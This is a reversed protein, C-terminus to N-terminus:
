KSVVKGRLVEKLIQFTLQAAPESGPVIVERNIRHALNLLFNGSITQPSAVTSQHPSEVGIAVAVDPTTHLAPKKELRKLVSYGAYTAGTYGQEGKYCVRIALGMAFLKGRHNKSIINGDWVPGHVLQHLQETLERPFIKVVKDIEEFYDRGPAYAHDVLEHIKQFLMENSAPQASLEQENDIRQNEM